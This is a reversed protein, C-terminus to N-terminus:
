ARQRRRGGEEGMAQDEKERTMSSGHHSHTYIYLEPFVSGCVPYCMDHGPETRLVPELATIPLPNFRRLLMSDQVCSQMCCVMSQPSPRDPDLWDGCWGEPTTTEDRGAAKRATM